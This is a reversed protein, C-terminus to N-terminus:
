ARRAMPPALKTIVVGCISSAASLGAFDARADHGYAAEVVIADQRPSWELNKVGMNIGTPIILYM